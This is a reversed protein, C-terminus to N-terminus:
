WVARQQAPGEGLYEDRELSCKSKCQYPMHMSFTEYWRSGGDGDLGEGYRSGEADVVRGVADHLKMGKGASGTSGVQNPQALGNKEM